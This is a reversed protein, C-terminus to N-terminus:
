AAPQESAQNEPKAAPKDAAKGKKEPKPATKPKFVDLPHLKGAAVVGKIEISDGLPPELVAKGTALARLAHDVNDIVQREGYCVTPNENIYHKKICRVIREDAVGAALVTEADDDKNPFLLGASFAKLGKEKDERQDTHTVIFM